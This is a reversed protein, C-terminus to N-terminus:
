GGEKNNWTMFRDTDYGYKKFLELVNIEIDQEFDSNSNLQERFIDILEQVISLIKNVRNIPTESEPNFIASLFSVLKIRQIDKYLNNVDCYELYADLALIDINEKEVEKQIYNSVSLNYDNQEVEEIKVIREIDLETDIFKIDTTSKSKNLVLIITSVDTDEFQKQPIYIVTEIVNQQIVWKRIKGEANGRYMLGPFLMVVAKGTDALYHLIHQVFAWDAKSKPALVGPGKFREDELFRPDDKGKENKSNWSVSFPPNAMIAEFKKNVWAPNPDELLDGIYGEFNPINERCWELPETNIEQGYKKVEDPFIKLLNGSGCTPDYVEKVDPPLFEKMYLALKEPTYFEGKDKYAKRKSKLSHEFEAAM